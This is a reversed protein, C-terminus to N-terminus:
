RPRHSRKRDRKKQKRKTKTRREADREKRRQNALKHKEAFSDSLGFRESFSPWGTSKDPAIGLSPAGLERRVYGWDGAVTPDVVDAAFAREITEASDIAALDLLDGVLFGNMTGLDTQHCALEATLIAVVQQRTEPFHRVIERLGNAAKIRPLEGHSADSLYAALPEIAPPGILGFVHHFEELYWDDDLEDLQDQVDLLPQVAEVARLQSLARWAHVPGYDVAGDSEAYIWRTALSILAPINERTLSYETVYNPDGEHWRGTACADGRNQLAEVLSAATLPDAM